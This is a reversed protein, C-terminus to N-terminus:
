LVAWIVQLAGVLAVATAATVPQKSSTKLWIAVGAVVLAAGLVLFVNLGGMGFKVIGFSLLTELGSAVLAILPFLRAKIQMLLLVSAALAVLVLVQAHTMGSM